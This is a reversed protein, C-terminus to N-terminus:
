SSAHDGRICDKWPGEKLRALLQGRRENPLIKYLRELSLVLVESQNEQTSSGALFDACMMELCYGRSKDSGLMLAVTELAQEVVPIQSKYLKFYIIEWPETEKGTLYREVETKFGEKPLEKARHLWTACDFREGDKRAVKVLETAKSWGVERLQPKPVRTLNEHIAMLYYAKRRSAPFRKELFNDFSTLKELKWYQKARVECLYEGLEVFRV